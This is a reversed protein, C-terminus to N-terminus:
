AFVGNANRAYGLATTHPPCLKPLLHFAMSLSFNSTLRVTTQKSSIRTSGANAMMLALNRPRMSTLSYVNRQILQRASERCGANPAAFWTSSTAPHVRGIRASSSHKGNQQHSHRSYTVRKWIHMSRATQKNATTADTLAM